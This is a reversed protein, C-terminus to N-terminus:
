KTLCRRRGHRELRHASSYSGHLALAKPTKRARKLTHPVQPGSGTQGPQTGRPPMRDSAAPASREHLAAAQPLEFWVTKGEPAPIIGWTDAIAELIRLGRGSPDQPGPSLVTPKGQGTDRVEVRIQGQLSITLEFGTQAHRV